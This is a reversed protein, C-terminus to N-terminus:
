PLPPRRAASSDQLIGPDTRNWWGGGLAQFLSVTDSYRREVARVYALRAQQYNQQAILLSVYNAAGDDYQKQILDVGAEAAAVADYQAKLALADNVLATLTDAVNQFAHLVILRYQATAQEYTDIAARRKARLAGGAFLPQAIGASINWISGEPTFLSGFSLSEAGYSGTLTLQPLMNATAVGIAAGAQRVMAEQARIDPRRQMLASPVGVPLDQPLTLDSLTLQLPSTDQPAVGTLVALEHEAAMLQQQLTPLTARVSALISQQQLLDARTQSGLAVKGQIIRLQRDELAIIEQTASIQDHTAAVRIATAAVNTTLTLYSAELRFNQMVAQAQMGEIARREGGFLDFAYFVDVNAEFVNTIFRPFGPGISAGSVKERIGNSTGRIQPFLTGRQARVDEIAARLAAQQAAIDPYNAMAAAILENLKPSAFLNWWQGPVDRGLRFHQVDGGVAPTGATETQIVGAPYSDTWFSSPPQFNQGVACGALVAM